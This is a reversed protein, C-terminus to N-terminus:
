KLSMQNTVCEKKINFMQTKPMELDTSASLQRESRLCVSFIQFVRKFTPSFGFALSRLIRLGFHVIWDSGTCDSGSKTLAANNVDSLTM